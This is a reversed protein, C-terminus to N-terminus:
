SEQAFLRVSATSTHGGRGSRSARPMPGIEGEAEVVTSEHSHRTTPRAAAIRMQEYPSPAERGSGIESSVDEAEVVTSEHSHRTTPRAAAIRMQEYPSPAERGSGIESSVDEAEVVTSEHSHRTTPRAAAIRM